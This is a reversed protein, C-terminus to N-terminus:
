PSPTVPMQASATATSKLALNEPLPPKAEVTTASMLLLVPVCVIALQQYM